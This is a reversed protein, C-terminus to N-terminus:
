ARRLLEDEGHFCDACGTIDLFLSQPDTPGELAVAPSYREAWVALQRLADLDGDPNKEEACLRPEIALAEALPMQPRVGARSAQASCLVVRPGRAAKGDVLVVPKARFEHRERRLRQLPWKPLYVCM